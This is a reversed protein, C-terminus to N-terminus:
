QRLERGSLAAAIGACAFFTMCQLYLVLLLTIPGAFVGYQPKSLSYSIVLTMVYKLIEVAVAGIAAAIIRSRRDPRIGGLHGLLLLIILFDLALAAALGIVLVLPQLVTGSIGLAEYVQSALGTVAGSIVYSLLVLPAVVLLWAGLRGRALVYNRSDKPAGYIIHLARSTAYVAASASYVMVVLGVISATQGLASLAQPDIGNTGVLGPFAEGLATTISDRLRDSGLWAAVGYGLAALSFVSLFLYYATGASLLTVNAYSFRQYARYGLGAKRNRESVKDLTERLLVQNPVDRGSSRLSKVALSYYETTWTVVVNTLLTLCWAQETQQHLQP